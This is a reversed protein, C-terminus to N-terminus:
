KATLLGNLRFIYMQMEEATSEPLQLRQYDYDDLLSLAESYSSTIHILEETEGTKLQHGSIVKDQLAIIKKLEFFKGSDQLLRKENVAFGQVLYDKLVKNAWIRFQTGRKSKIRYGVSIILDLNYHDINRSVERQGEKRVQRFKRCTSNKDLEGEKYANNIHETINVRSSDFLDAMQYQNLWVTDKKLKVEINTQGDDTQYIVIKNQENM